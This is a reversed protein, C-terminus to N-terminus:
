TPKIAYQHRTRLAFVLVLLNLFGALYLPLGYTMPLAENVLLGAIVPGIGNSISIYSSNLGAAIGQDEPRANLSILTSVMPQVLANFLAFGLSISWFYALNPVLPMLIFAVGRALIGTLLIKVISWRQTLWKVGQTQALVGLLGFCLFLLTLSQSNQHLVRTYYPQFAFTFINFTTGILFNILLLTGIRPLRFGQALQGLGLNFDKFDTQRASAPLSEPLFILTLVLAVSAIASSVLFSAGLSVRQAALSLVPGLVFGLGFTAGIVGYGKARQAPPTVDAIMAQIVSANGGTMGDLFRAFFLIGATPATGAILNAIVTGSLSLILLPKRGLRDSLKGIISTAFFQAIAYIAFLWSAQVDSLQFEKAYLYITPILITFSLSNILSILATIWFTRQM